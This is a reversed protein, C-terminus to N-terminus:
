PYHMYMKHLECSFPMKKHTIFLSAVLSYTTYTTTLLNTSGFKSNSNEGLMQWFYELYGHGQSLRLSLTLSLTREMLSIFIALPVGKVWESLDREGNKVGEEEIINYLVYTFIYRLGGHRWTYSITGIGVATVNLALTYGHLNWYFILHFHFTLKQTTQGRGGDSM